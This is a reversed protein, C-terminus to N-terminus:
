GVARVLPEAFQDNILPNPSGTAVARAAAVMTATVRVGSALDWTDGEFRARTM